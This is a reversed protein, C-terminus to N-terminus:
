SVGNSHNNSADGNEAAADEGEGGAGEGNVCGNQQQKQQQQQMRQQRRKERYQETPGWVRVTGDDSASVLVCPHVPNWTVCNVTRSHGPLVAIPEERRVHYLYVKNDESGSAVFNQEGDPGGAGGFCSYIAYFGQTIGKFKRVLTRDEVDWLHLGQNAINLLAYRDSDDLTFSMIGHDEQLVSFDTLDEFNYSRIRHHTDAALISKGDKRYALCQVRVGEWSDNVTGKTDCQYFNGRNGGCAVKSGCPSWSVTTLSDETSHSIKGDVM